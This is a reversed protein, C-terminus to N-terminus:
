VKILYACGVWENKVRDISVVLGIKYIDPSTILGKIEEIQEEVLKLPYLPLNAENGEYILNDISSSYLYEEKEFQEELQRYSRYNLIDATNMTVKASLRSDDRTNNLFGQCLNINAEIVNKHKDSIEILTKTFYLLVDDNM